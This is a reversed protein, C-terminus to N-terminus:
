KKIGSPLPKKGFTYTLSNKRERRKKAIAVLKETLEKLTYKGEFLYYALSGPVTNIENVYVNEDKILFDVRAVGSCRVAAFAKKTMSEIRKTTEDPLPAPIRRKASEKGKGGGLYKDEYSLFEKWGIPQETKSLETEGDCDGLAACNVEIFDELAQEVIVRNDFEFATRMSEFLEEYGHAVSIGISSGLNVPKVILPFAFDKKLTETFAYSEDFFEEAKVEIYKVCPLGAAQFLRKMIVKDMGVASALVDGGTYPIGSTELLGQLCGDEGYAGHCCNVVADLTRVRKGKDNYLGFDDPMFHVRTKGKPSFKEFTKLDDFKDGIYFDGKKDIYIGTAGKGLANLTMVGTVISVDHECSRGGFIVATM